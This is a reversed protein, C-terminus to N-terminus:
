TMVDGGQMNIFMVKHDYGNIAVRIDEVTKTNYINQTCIIM